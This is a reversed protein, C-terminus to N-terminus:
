HSERRREDIGIELPAPDGPLFASARMFPDDAPSEDDRRDHDRGDRDACQDRM